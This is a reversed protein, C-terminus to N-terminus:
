TNALADLKLRLGNGLVSKHFCVGRLFRHGSAKYKLLGQPISSSPFLGAHGAYRYELVTEARSLGIITSRV